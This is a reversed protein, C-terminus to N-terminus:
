VDIKPRQHAQVADEVALEHLGFVRAAGVLDTPTPEHMGMWVFAQPDSRAMAALRVVNRTEEVRQGDRYLACDIIAM